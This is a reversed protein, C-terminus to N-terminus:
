QDMGWHRAVHSAVRSRRGLAALTRVIPRQIRAPVGAMVMDLDAMATALARPDRPMGDRGAQGEAALGYVARLFKELELGPTAVTLFRVDRDSANRFGHDTGPQLDIREGAALQQVRGNGLDVTLVGHEVIFSEHMEAHTHLPAGAAGPQLICRFLFTEGGDMLPSALIEMRDGTMPNHLRRSLTAAM